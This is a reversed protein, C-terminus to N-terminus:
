GIDPAFVFRRLSAILAPSTENTHSAALRSPSLRVTPFGSIVNPADDRSGGLFFTGRSSSSRRPTPTPAAHTSNQSALQTMLELVHARALLLVAVESQQQELPLGLAQDARHHRRPGECRTTLSLHRQRRAIGPVAQPRGACESGTRRSRHARRLHRWLSPRGPPAAAATRYSRRPRPRHRRMSRRRLQVDTATPTAEAIPTDTTTAADAIVVATTQGEIRAQAIPPQSGNDAIAFAIGGGVLTLVVVVVLVRKM